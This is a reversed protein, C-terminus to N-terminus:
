AAALSRRSVGIVGVLGTVFLWLAAPVPVASVRADSGGFGASGYDTRNTNDNFATCDSSVTNTDM